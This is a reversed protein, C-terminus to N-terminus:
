TFFHSFSLALSHACMLLFLAFSSQLYAFRRALEPSRALFPRGETGNRM